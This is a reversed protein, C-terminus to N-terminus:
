ECQNKDDFAFRKKKAKIYPHPVDALPDFLTVETFIEGDAQYNM